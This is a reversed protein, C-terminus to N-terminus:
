NAKSGVPREGIRYALEQLSEELLADMTNM